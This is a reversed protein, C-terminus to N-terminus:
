GIVPFVANTRVALGHKVLRPAHFIGVAEASVFVYLQAPFDSALRVYARIGSCSSGLFHAVPRFVAVEVVFAIIGFHANCVTIFLRVVYFEPGYSVFVVSPPFDSCFGRLFPSTQNEFGSLHELM